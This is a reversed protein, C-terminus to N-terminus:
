QSFVLFIFSMCLGERWVELRIQCFELASGVLALEDTKQRCHSIPRVTLGMMGWKVRGPSIGIWQLERNPESFGM